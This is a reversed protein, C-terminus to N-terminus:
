EKVQVFVYLEAYRQNGYSQANQVIIKLKARDNETTITADELTLESHDGTFLTDLEELPWALLEQEDKELVLQDKQLRLQMNNALEFRRHMSNQSASVQVFYDYHDIATIVQEDWDLNTTYYVENTYDKYQQSFGFIKDFPKNPLWAIDYDLRQLYDFKETIFQKDENSIEPNPQVEGNYMNLSQLREQLLNEQNNKSITFADVPPIVSLLSFGIFIPAVLWQKKPMFTLILAIIIAFLGFLIVFYRGHTMGTEGIKMISVVLQYLVIVLLVKPFILRFWKTLVNNIQYSLFYVILVTTAFYVLLPELLNESWDTFHLAIYIVLIVAYVMTLPVIVYSLLVELIPAREEEKMTLSLFFLPMFLGFVIAAIYEIIHSNVSFLLYNIAAYILMLGVFIVISFFATILVSKFIHFFRASFNEEGRWIFGMMLASVVVGTQIALVLDNSSSIWFFLGTFFIAISYTIVHKAFLDAVSAAFVAVVLTALWKEYNAVTGSIEAVNVFFLVVLLVTALPFAKIAETIAAFQQFIRNFRM